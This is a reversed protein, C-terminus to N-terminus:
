NLMYRLPPPYNLTSWLTSLNCRFRARVLKGSPNCVLDRQTGQSPPPKSRCVRAVQKKCRHCVKNKFKCMTAVAILNKDVTEAGQAITLARTLTLPDNEQLLKKQIGEDNIGWVLRDHVMKDLTDRYKYHETLCCLKALYAATSEGIKRSRSNFQFCQM